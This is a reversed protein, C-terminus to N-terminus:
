RRIIKRICIKKEVDAWNLKNIEKQTHLEQIFRDTRLESKIERSKNQRIDELPVM